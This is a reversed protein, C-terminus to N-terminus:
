GLKKRFKKSRKTTKKASNPPLNKIKKQIKRLDGEVKESDNQQLFTL